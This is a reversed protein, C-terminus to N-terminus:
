TIACTVTMARMNRSASVQTFQHILKMNKMIDNVNLMSSNSDWTEAMALTCNLHGNCSINEM